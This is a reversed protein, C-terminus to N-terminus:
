EEIGNLHDALRIAADRTLNGAYLILPRIVGYSGDGYEEIEAIKGRGRTVNPKAVLEEIASRIVAISATRDYGVPNGHALMFVDDMIKNIAEEHM